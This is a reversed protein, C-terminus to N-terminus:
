FVYYFMLFTGGALVILAGVSRSVFAYFLGGLVVMFFGALNGYHMFFSQFM